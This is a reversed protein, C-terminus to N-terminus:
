RFKNLSAFNGFTVWHNQSSHSSHRAISCALLFGTQLSQHRCRRASVHQCGANSQYKLVEMSCTIRQGITRLAKNQASRALIDQIGRLSGPHKSPSVRLQVELMFVNQACKRARHRTLRFLVQITEEHSTCHICLSRLDKENGVLELCSIIVWGYRAQVHEPLDVGASQRGLHEQPMAAFARSLDPWDRNVKCILIPLDKRFSPKMLANQFKGSNSTGPTERLSAGLCRM